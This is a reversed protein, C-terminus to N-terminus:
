PSKNTMKNNIGGISLKLQKNWVSMFIVFMQNVVLHVAKTQNTRNSGKWDKQLAAQHFEKLPTESIRLQAKISSLLNLLFDIHILISCWFSPNQKIM